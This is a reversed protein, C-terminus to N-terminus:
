ARAVKEMWFYGLVHLTYSDSVFTFMSWSSSLTRHVAPLDFSCCTEDPGAQLQEPMAAVGTHSYRNLYSYAADDM